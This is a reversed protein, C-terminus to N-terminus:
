IKIIDKYVIERFKNLIKKALHLLKYQYNEKIFSVFAQSQFDVIKKIYPM